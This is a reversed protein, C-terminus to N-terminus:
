TSASIFINAAFGNSWSVLVPPLLYHPPHKLDKNRETHIRKTHFRRYGLRDLGSKGPAETYSFSPHLLKLSRKQVGNIDKSM